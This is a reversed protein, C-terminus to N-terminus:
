REEGGLIGRLCDNWGRVYKNFGITDNEIPVKFQPIEKVWDDIEEETIFRPLDNLLCHETDIKEAGILLKTLINLSLYPKRDAYIIQKTYEIKPVKILKYNERSVVENKRTIVIDASLTDIDEDDLTLTIITKTM